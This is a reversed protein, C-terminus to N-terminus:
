IYLSLDHATLQDHAYLQDHASLQDYAYLQDHADLNILDKFKSLDLHGPTPNPVPSAGFSVGGSVSVAWGQALM